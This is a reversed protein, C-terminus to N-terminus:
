KFLNHTGKYKLEPVDQTSTIRGHSSPAYSPCAQEQLQPCPQVITHVTALFSKKEKGIPYRPPNPQKVCKNISITEKKNVQKKRKSQSPNIM